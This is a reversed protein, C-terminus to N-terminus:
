YSMVNCKGSSDCCLFEYVCGTQDENKCCFLQENSQNIYPGYPLEDPCDPTFGADCVDETGSTQENTDAPTTENDGTYEVDVEVDSQIPLPKIGVSRAWTVSIPTAEKQSLAKLAENNGEKRAEGFSATGMMTTEIYMTRNAKPLKVGVFAHDPLLMIIPEMQLEEIVSAFLVTGDICNAQEQKVSQWPFRVIQGANNGFTAGVSTYHIGIQQLTEYIVKLQEVVHEDDSQYGAMDPIKKSAYKLIETIVPDNPTVWAAIYSRLDVSSNNYPNEYAWLMENAPKLNIGITKDVCTKGTDTDEINVNLTAPKEAMNQLIYDNCVLDFIMNQQGNPSLDFEEKSENTYDQIDYTVRLHKEESTTNGFIGYLYGSKQNSQESVSKAAYCLFPYFDKTVTGIEIDVGCATKKALAQNTFIFLSIIFVLLNLSAIHSKRKM